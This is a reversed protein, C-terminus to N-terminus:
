EQVTMNNKVEVVGEIDRILRTVLDIEVQNRATGRLTVEGRTTEVQIRLTRTSRNRLLAFEIQATITADDIKEGIPELRGSFAVAMRNNVRKVGDIDKALASILTKGVRSQSLGQLRVVGDKVEVETLDIISRHFLLALKVKAEIWVDTREDAECNVSGNPQNRMYYPISPPQRTAKLIWDAPM